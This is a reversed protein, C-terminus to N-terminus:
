LRCRLEMVMHAEHAPPIAQKCALTFQQMHTVACSCGDGVEAATAPAQNGSHSPGAESQLCACLLQQSLHRPECLLAALQQGAACVRHFIREDQLECRADLLQLAVSDTSMLRHVCCSCSIGATRLCQRVHCEHLSHCSQALDETRSCGKHNCEGADVACLVEADYMPSAVIALMSAASATVNRHTYVKRSPQQTGVSSGQGSTDATVMQITASTDAIASALPSSAM